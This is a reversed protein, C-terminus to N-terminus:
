NGKLVDLIRQAVYAHGQENFHVADLYLHPNAKFHKYLPITSVHPYYTSLDHLIANYAEISENRFPEAQHPPTEILIVRSVQEIMDVLKAKYEQPPVVFTTGLLHNLGCLRAIKRLRTDPYYLVYPAYRFTKWSDVLGYAIIVCSFSTQRHEKFYITGERTTTMTHGCNQCSEQLSKELCTVYTKGKYTQAGLLNCDGLALFM